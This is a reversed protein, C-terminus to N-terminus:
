KTEALAKQVAEEYSLPSIQPFYRAANDNQIVTESKLGEILEKAIRYSVSTILLLWYSSLKPTLLPVPILLRRHGMVQSARLLMHKFSMAESGIDVTINEKIDLDKAAVLYDLVNSIGIPQTKTHVWKPTIMFPLKKVLQRIIKFSASGAGIIIGARFWLTQISEPRSSLIEGTEIRSLLHKSATEKKGLGGLYIIRKVRAEICANLFNEASLRDLEEYDGKAAMSHILYYAVDIGELAKQLSKTDFTSGQFVEVSRRDKNGVKNKDRVLLRLRITRDELLREKLKGGIYGTSGTLLLNM